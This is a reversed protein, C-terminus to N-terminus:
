LGDGRITENLSRWVTYLCVLAFVWAGVTALAYGWWAPIQLEYTAEVWCYQDAIGLASWLWGVVPDKPDACFKDLMGFWLMRAVIVSVIALLVNGLFGLASKVRPSFQDALLDVTVHGRNIQCWPLFSFVAIACGLQVLEFDGKVPSFGYAVLARGVVSVVTVLAIAALLVGGFLALLKAGTKLIAGARAEAGPLIGQM